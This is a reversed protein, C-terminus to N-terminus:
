SDTIVLESVSIQVCCVALFPPTANPFRELWGFIPGFRGGCGGQLSRSTGIGFRQCM